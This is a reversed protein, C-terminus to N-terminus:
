KKFFLRRVFTVVGDNNILNRWFWNNMRVVIAMLLIVEWETIL